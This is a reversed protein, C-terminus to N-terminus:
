RQHVCVEFAHVDVDKEIVIGAYDISADGKHPYTMIYQRNIFVFIGEKFNRLDVFFEKDSGFTTSGDEDELRLAATGNRGHQALLKKDFTPNLSLAPKGKHDLLKVQFTNGTTSGYIIISDGVNLSGGPFNAQFPTHFVRGGVRMETVKVDGDVTVYEIIELPLLLSYKFKNFLKGNFYIEFKNYVARIRIDFPKGLKFPVSTEQKQGWKGYQLTAYTTKNNNLDFSLHLPVAGRKFDMITSGGILNVTFTQEKESNNDIIGNIYITQGITFEKALHFVYPFDYNKIFM